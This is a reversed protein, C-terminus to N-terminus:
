YNENKLCCYNTQIHFRLVSILAVFHEASNPIFTQDNVLYFEEM